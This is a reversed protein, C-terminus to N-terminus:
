YPLELLRGWVYENGYISFTLCKDSYLELKLLRYQTVKVVSFGNLCKGLNVVQISTRGTKMKMKVMMMMVIMMMTM